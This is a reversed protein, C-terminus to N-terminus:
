KLGLQEACFACVWGAPTRKWGYNVADEDLIRLTVAVAERTDKATMGMPGSNDLSECRRIHSGEASPENMNECRYEIWIAM